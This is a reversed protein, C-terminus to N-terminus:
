EEMRSSTMISTQQMSINALDNTNNISYVVDDRRPRGGVYTQEEAEMEDRDEIRDTINDIDILIAAQWVSDSDVVEGFPPAM